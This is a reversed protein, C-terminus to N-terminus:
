HSPHAQREECLKDISPTLPSLCVRLDYEVNLWTRYKTKIAMMALFSTEYLYTTPIPLLIRMAQLAVEKYEKEVTHWFDAPSQQNFRNRLTGGSSFELLWFKMKLREELAEQVQSLVAGLGTYSAGMQLLFPCCFDPARLVLESTLAEKVWPVSRGHGTDVHGEGAAGEQWYGKTLDLTTIYCARGLRDLLVDVRPM